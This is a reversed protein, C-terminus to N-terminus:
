AAREKAWKAYMKWARQKIYDLAHPSWREMIARNIDRFSVHGPPRQRLCFAYTLAVGDRTMKPNAIEDLIVREANALTYTQGTTM